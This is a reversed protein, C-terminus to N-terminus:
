DAGHTEPEKTLKLQEALGLVTVIALKTAEPLPVDGSELRIMHRKKYGLLGGFAELTMGLRDRAARVFAADTNDNKTM